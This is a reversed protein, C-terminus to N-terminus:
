VKRFHRHFDRDLLIKQYLELGKRHNDERIKKL